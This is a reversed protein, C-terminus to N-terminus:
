RLFKLHNPFAVLLFALFIFLGGLIIPLLIHIGMALGAAVPALGWGLSEFAGFTGMTRGQFERSATDSVVTASTPIIVAAIIYGIPLVFWFLSPTDAIAYVTWLSFAWFVLGFQLVRIASFKKLIPGVLFACAFTYALSSFSLFVSVKLPSFKLGKIWWAPLMALYFSWGFSLLFAALLLRLVYPEEKALTAIAALVGSRHHKVSISRTEPLWLWAGFANFCTLACTVLFPRAINSADPGALLGGFPPGITLGIAFSMNILAFRKGKESDDHSVDAISANVVAFSAIAVGILIRGILLGYLSQFAVSWAAVIYGISGISLCLVILPRRGYTDSLNGAFPSCIMQVVPAASLLLGIWVSRLAESAEPPLFTWKPDFLLSPFIPLVIGFGIADLLAVLCLLFLTRRTM